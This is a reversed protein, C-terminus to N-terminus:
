KNKTIHTTFWTLHLAKANKGDVTLPLEVWGEPSQPQTVSIAIEVKQRPAIIIEKDVDVLVGAKGIADTDFRLIIPHRLQNKATLLFHGQEGPKKDLLHLRQQSVYLGGGLARSVQGDYSYRAPKVKGDFSLMTYETDPTLYIYVERSFFGPRYTPNYSVTVEMQAYPLIETASLRMDTCGCGTDFHSIRLTDGSVNQLKYTFSVEGDAERITGFSHHSKIAKLRQSVKEALEDAYNDATQGQVSLPAFLM